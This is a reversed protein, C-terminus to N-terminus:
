LLVEGAPEMRALADEARVVGKRVDQAHGPGARAYAGELVRQAPEPKTGGPRIIWDFDARWGGDEGLLFPSEGVLRFIERWQALPRRQLAARARKKRDAPMGVVRPLPPSTIENWAEALQGLSEPAGGQPPLPLSRGDPLDIHTQTQTQRKPKGGADSRSGNPKGGSGTRNKKWTGHYRKMGRVRIGGDFVEVIGLDELAQILEDADGTWEVAGAVMRAARPSNVIGMPPEDAPGQDLGWAWLDILMSLARHRDCGLLGALSRSLGFAEQTVQVWPLRM